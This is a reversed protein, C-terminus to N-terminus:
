RRPEAEFGRIGYVGAVSIGVIQLVVLWCISELIVLPLPERMVNWPLYLEFWPVMLAWSLLGFSSGNRYFRGSLKPELWAYAIAQALGVVLLIIGLLAPEDAIRPPPPQTFVEIFKPSQLAPDALIRQAPGFILVLGIGWAVAAAATAAVVRIIQRSRIRM